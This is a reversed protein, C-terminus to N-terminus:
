PDRISPLRQRVLSEALDMDVGGSSLRHDNLEKLISSQV